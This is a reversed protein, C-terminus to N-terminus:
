AQASERGERHEAVAMQYHAMKNIANLYARASADIM